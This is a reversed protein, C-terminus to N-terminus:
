FVDIRDREVNRKFRERRIPRTAIQVPKKLVGGLEEEIRMWDFLSVGPGFEVLLDVDSDPRADGRAQSGFLSLSLVGDARLQAERAKLEAIIEAKSMAGFM